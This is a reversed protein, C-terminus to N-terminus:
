LWHNRGTPQVLCLDQAWEDDFYITNVQDAHDPRRITTNEGQTFTLKGQLPEAWNRTAAAALTLIAASSLTHNGTPNISYQIDSTSWSMEQGSPDLRVEWANADSAILALLLIMFLVERTLDSCRHSSKLDAGSRKM